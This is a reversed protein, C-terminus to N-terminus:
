NSSLYFLRVRAPPCSCHWTHCLLFFVLPFNTFCVISTTHTHLHQLIQRPSFIKFNCVCCNANVISEIHMRIYCTRQLMLMTMTIDTPMADSNISIGYVNICISVCVPNELLPPSSGIPIADKNGDKNETHMPMRGHLM